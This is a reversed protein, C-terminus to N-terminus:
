KNIELIEKILEDSTTVIRFEVRRSKKDIENKSEYVFEGNSDIARGNGLGNATFWFKLKDRDKQELDNKYYTSSLLYFLVANARDQSLNITYNYDDWKATHGEIRIEKINNSYKDKNIINIYIPLFESLIIKYKETLESSRYEFLMDPDDFKISLDQSIVMDWEAYKDKFATTLENFIENRTQDFKEVAKVKNQVQNINLISLFLFVLMLGTMMDSMSIWSSDDNRKKEM